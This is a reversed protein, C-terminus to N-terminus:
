VFAPIEIQGAVTDGRPTERILPHPRGHKETFPTVVMRDHHVTVILFNFTGAWSVTHADEFGGDSPKNRRVKGAGGSIFYDIGNHRSHQFNHEHGSFM